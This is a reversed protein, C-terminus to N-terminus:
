GIGPDVQADPRMVRGLQIRQQVVMVDIQAEDIVVIVVGADDRLTEKLLLQIQDLRIRGRDPLLADVCILQISEPLQVQGPIIVVLEPM